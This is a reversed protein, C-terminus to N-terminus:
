RPASELARDEAQRWARQWNLEHAQGWMRSPAVDDLTRPVQTADAAREQASAVAGALATWYALHAEIEAIPAPEGQEGLLLLPSGRRADATAPRPAELALARLRQTAAQMPAIASDRLDPAAGGWLLGHATMVPQARVRWVTLAIGPAREIRWWSFPGLMGHEGHVLREPLRFARAAPGLDFAAAGLRRRLREVCDSCDRRMARAVDAHAWHRARPMGTAGLVLEPHARPSIIDSVPRGLVRRVVCDLKRGFARTPGSGVLWVRQGDRLVLLNSVQGRNDATADGRAARVWWLGAASGPWPELRPATSGCATASSAFLIGALALAQGVLSRSSMATRAVHARRPMDRANLCYM